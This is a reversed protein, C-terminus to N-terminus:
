EVKKWGDPINCPTPFTGVEGTTANRALTIVQPCVVNLDLSEQGEELFSGSILSYVVYILALLGVGGILSIYTVYNTRSKNFM